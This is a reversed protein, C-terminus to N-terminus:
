YQCESLIMTGVIIQILLVLLILKIIGWNKYTSSRPVLQLWYGKPCEVSIGLDLLHFDGKNLMVTEACFVDIFNGHQEVEPLDPYLEKHYRIKLTPAENIFINKADVGLANALRKLEEEPSNAAEIQDLAEEITNM